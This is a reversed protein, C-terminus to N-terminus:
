LMETCHFSKSLVLSLAPSVRLKDAWMPLRKPLRIQPLPVSHPKLSIPTRDSGEVM